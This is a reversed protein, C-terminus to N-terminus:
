EGARMRARRGYRTLFAMRPDAMVTKVNPIHVDAREGAEGAMGSGMARSERSVM